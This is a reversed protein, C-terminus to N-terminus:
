AAARISRAAVFWRGESLVEGGIEAALQAGSLYRKFVRHRSGDNLVREQWEEPAVGPRLASDVVV